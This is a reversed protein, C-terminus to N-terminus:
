QRSGQGAQENEEETESVDAGCKPCIIENFALGAGCETCVWELDSEKQRRKEEAEKRRGETAESELREEAFREEERVKERQTEEKEKGARENEEEIESVDAGCKPCITENFALEAGCETCVWELDSHNAPEDLFMFRNKKLFMAITKVKTKLIIYLKDLGLPQIESEEERKELTSVMKQDPIKGSRELLIEQTAHLYEEIEREKSNIQDRVKALLGSFEECDNLRDDLSQELTKTVLVDWGEALDGDIQSPMKLGLDRGTLLKFTMLGLSYIDSREDAEEGRKQEPSMYEYTGLLARTSTGEKEGGVTGKEGVSMSLRVSDEARSMVWEEGVLRVLGFDSIKAHIGQDEAGKGGGGEEERSKGAEGKLLVNAPKLDRHVAGHKHAYDLGEIVQRLIELLLSQEVKEGGAEALDALSTLKKSRPLGADQTRFGADETLGEMLEMRLWYQGETEGFEDVQVIHPHKLNAMVRAERRFRELAGPRSMLDPPLLKLAYHLGLTTHEAEYVEGMGGRGLLRIIRYQGLMDGVRFRPSEKEGGSVKVTRDIDLPDGDKRSSM